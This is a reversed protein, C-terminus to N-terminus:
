FHLGVWLIKAINPCFPATIAIYTRCIEIILEEQPKNEQQFPELETTSNKHGGKPVATEIAYAHLKVTIENIKLEKQLTKQLEMLLSAIKHRNATTNGRTICENIKQKTNEVSAQIRDYDKITFVDAYNGRRNWEVAALLMRRSRSLFKYIGELAGENWSNYYPADNEKPTKEFLLYLRLCDVGYDMILDEDYLRSGTQDLWELLEACSFVAPIACNQLKDAYYDIERHNIPTFIDTSIKNEM